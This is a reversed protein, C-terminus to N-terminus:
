IQFLMLEADKEAFIIKKHDTKSSLLAMEQKLSLDGVTIKGCLLQLWYKTREEKALQPNEWCGPTLDMNKGRTSDATIWGSWRAVCCSKFVIIIARQPSATKNIIRNQISKEQNLGSKCCIFHNQKLLIFESHQIGKGASMLQVDGPRIIGGNGLSDKHEVAGSLVYTIIEMNAHSHTNFGTNPQVIDENIVRLSGFGMYESDHYEGFSFSHWSKLWDLHTLGRQNKPRLTIM